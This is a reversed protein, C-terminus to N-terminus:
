RPHAEMEMLEQYYCVRRPYLTSSANYYERQVFAPGVYEQLWSLTEFVVGGAVQHVKRTIISLHTIM